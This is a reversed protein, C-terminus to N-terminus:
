AEDSLSFFATLRSIIGFRILLLLIKNVEYYTLVTFKFNAIDISNINNFNKRNTQKTIKQTKIANIVYQHAACHFFFEVVWLVTIETHTLRHM